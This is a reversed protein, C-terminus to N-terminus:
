YAPFSKTCNQNKCSAYNMKPKCWVWGLCTATACFIHIMRIFQSDCVLFLRNKDICLNPKAMSHNGHHMGVPNTFYRFSYGYCFVWFGIVAWTIKDAVTRGWIFAPLSVRNRDVIEWIRCDFHHLLFTTQEMCWRISLAFTKFSM